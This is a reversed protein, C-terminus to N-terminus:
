TSRPARCRCKTYVECKRNAVSPVEASALMVEDGEGAEGGGETFSERRRVYFLMVRSTRPDWHLKPSHQNFERATDSAVAPAPTSWKLGTTDESHAWM